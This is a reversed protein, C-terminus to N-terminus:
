LGERAVAHVAEVLGALDVLAWGSNPALASQSVWKAAHDYCRPGLGDAPILKGWLVYESPKACIRAEDDLWERCGGVKRQIARLTAPADIVPETM